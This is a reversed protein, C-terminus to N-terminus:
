GSLVAAAGLTLMAALYVWPGSGASVALSATTTGVVAVVAVVSGAGALAARLRVPVKV